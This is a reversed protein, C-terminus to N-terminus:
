RWACRFGTNGTASHPDNHSRAALRYRNCYSAHCLYSGGKIVRDSGTPPGLPDVRTETSREAHWTRSWRDATWEWVNGVVNHLGYGNAEFADVPATGVYGDEGTDRDPFSGQWLNARHAGGPRLEDGWPYRARDLGGRAAVEWQAETPLTAGRWACYAAADHWSVHVVPHTERGAVSSSPGEPAQWSAGPVARWWPPTGATMPFGDVGSAAELFAAFVFSWGSREADTVYGTAAAFAAWERNTVAYPSVAFSSLQVDRIPGEGDFLNADPDSGGIAYTGGAIVSADAAGVPASGPQPALPASRASVIGRPTCCGSV